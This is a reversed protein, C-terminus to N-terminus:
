PGTVEGQDGQVLGLERDAGPGFAAVGDLAHDGEAAVPEGAEAHDLAVGAEGADAAVALLREQTAAVDHQDVGRSM